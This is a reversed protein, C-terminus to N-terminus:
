GKLGRRKMYVFKERQTMREKKKEIPAIISIQKRLNAIEAMNDDYKNIYTNKEAEKLFDEAHKTDGKILSMIAGWILLRFDKPDNILGEFTQASAMEQKGENMLDQILNHRYWSLAPFHRLHYQYFSTLDKYMPYVESLCICYYACFAILLPVYLIGAMSLFYSLFFMMFVNPMSCYRDSLIQTVPLVASWQLTALVFFGFFGIYRHPLIFFIIACAGLAATGKFFYADIKYADETGEKTLGWKLRDPYQMACVQPFIMKWFFFGFTKVIVIFRTPKFTKLDGDAMVEMRGRCKGIIYQSGALLFIPILLLFWPSKNLLLIPSFIATVQLLGSFLYLAPAIIPVLMMTLVLIINIAYRRGNLWLSTQNNIPNCIYLVAAGFSIKDHGLAFFMLIAITSNIAIKVWHELKVNTGFTTGSYLHDSIFEQFNNFNRIKSIPFFGLQRRKQYWQYDDMIVDYTTSHFYLAINILILIISPIM